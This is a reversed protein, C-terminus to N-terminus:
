SKVVGFSRQRARWRGLAPFDGLRADLQGMWSGEGGTFTLMLDPHFLCETYRNEVPGGFIDALAAQQRDNARALHFLDKVMGEKHYPRGFLRYISQVLPTVHLSYNELRGETKLVRHAEHCAQSFYPIHQFTQVSWVGDFGPFDAGADTFPLATADAHMLAVQTGVLSGLVKEAHILSARVFDIILVGVDPRSKALRRWHWGWCGGVDLILAGHPMSALFRDVEHSIVPISHNFAITALYNDYQQAAVRERLAREADQDSASPPIPISYIGDSGQTLPGATLLSSLQPHTIM